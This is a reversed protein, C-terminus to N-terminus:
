LLGSRSFIHHGYVGVRVETKESAPMGANPKSQIFEDVHPMPKWVEDNLVEGDIVPDTTITFAPTSPRSTVNPNSDVTQGNAAFSLITWSLIFPYSCAVSGRFNM